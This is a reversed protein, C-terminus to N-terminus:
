GEASCKGSLIAQPFQKARSVGRRVRTWHFRDEEHHRGEPEANSARVITPIEDRQDLVWRDRFPELFDDLGM